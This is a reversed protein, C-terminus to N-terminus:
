NEEPISKEIVQVKSSTVVSFVSSKGINSYDSEAIFLNVAMGASVAARFTLEKDSQECNFIKVGLIEEIDSLTDSTFNHTGSLWKTIVSPKKKMKEAFEVKSWKRVKIAKILISALLMSTRARKRELSEQTRFERLLDSQIKVPGKNTIKVTM